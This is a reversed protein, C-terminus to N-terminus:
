DKKIISVKKSNEDSLIKFNKTLLDFEIREANVETNNLENNLIVGNYAFVKNELSRYDLNKTFIKNDEYLIKIDNTFSTNFNSINYKANKSYIEIVSSNKLTILAYVGTLLLINGSGGTLEAMDGTISYINGHMDTSSYEVYSITNTPEPKEEPNNNSLSTIEENKKDINVESTNMFDFTKYGIFLIISFIIFQIIIKNNYKISM